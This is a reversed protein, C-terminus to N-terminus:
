SLSSTTQLSEKNHTNFHEKAFNYLEIDQQNYTFLIELVDERVNYDYHSKNTNKTPFEGDLQLWTPCKNQLLHLTSNIEELIGFAGFEYLLNYKAVKLVNDFGFAKKLEINSLYVTMLNGLKKALFILKDEPLDNLTVGKCGNGGLKYNFFNYHSIFRSIPERLITFYFPNKIHEAYFSKHMNFFAHNGIVKWKTKSFEKKEEETLQPLNKSFHLTNFGPIFIEYMDIGSALASENLYKRFSTGGCKPIHSFIFCDYSM